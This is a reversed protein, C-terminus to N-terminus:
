YSLTINVSTNGEKIDLKADKFKPPGMRGKADRSVGVGEKPIGLFNADCDSNNNEDHCVAVAYEGPEAITFQWEHQKAPIVVKDLAEGPNGPFGKKSNYLNMLIQGEQSSLNKVAVSLIANFSNQEEPVQETWATRLLFLNSLAVFIIVVNKKM